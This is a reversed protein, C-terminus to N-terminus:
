GSTSKGFGPLDPVYVRYHGSLEAATRLWATSGGGGGHVVVLPKGNGGTLYHIDSEGVKIIKSELNKGLYIRGEIM